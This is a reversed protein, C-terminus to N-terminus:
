FIKEALEQDILVTSLSLLLLFNCFPLSPRWDKKLTLDNPALSLNQVKKKNVPLKELYGAMQIEETDTTDDLKLISVSKYILM